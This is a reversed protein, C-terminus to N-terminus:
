LVFLQQAAVQLGIAVPLATAASRCLPCGGAACTLVILGRQFAQPLEGSCDIFAWGQLGPLGPLNSDIAWLGERYGM